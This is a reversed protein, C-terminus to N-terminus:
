SAALRASQDAALAEVEVRSLRRHGGLTRYARLMGEDVWRTVTNPTVGLIASAEGTSISESRPTPNEDM